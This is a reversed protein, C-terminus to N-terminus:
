ILPWPLNTISQLYGPPFDRGLVWALFLIFALGGAMYLTSALWSLGGRTRFFLMLFLGLAIVFGFVFTLLLLGLFWALTGWLGHPARADEGGSELDIFSEDTEPSRRMRILLALCGALTVIGVTLPFVKDGFRTIQSADFVSVAIYATICLLFIVPSRKAGTPADINERINKSQKIGVWISLVTLVLIGISLPTFIYDFGAEWSRRFRSM